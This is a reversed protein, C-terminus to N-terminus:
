PRDRHLTARAPFVGAPTSLTANLHRTSRHRRYREVIRRAIWGSLAGLPLALALTIIETPDSM